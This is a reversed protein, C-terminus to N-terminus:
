QMMADFLRDAHRKLYVQDVPKLKRIMDVLELARESDGGSRAENLAKLLKPILCNYLGAFSSDRNGTLDEVTIPIGIRAAHMVAGFLDRWNGFGKGGVRFGLSECTGVVEAKVDNNLSDWEKKSNSILSLLGLIFHNTAGEEFFRSKYHWLFTSTAVAKSRGDLMDWEKRNEKALKFLEKAPERAVFGHYSEFTKAVVMVSEKGLMRLDERNEVLFEQLNILRWEAKKIKDRRTREDMEEDLGRLIEEEIKAKAEESLGFGAIHASVLLLGAERVDLRKSFTKAEELWKEVNQLEMEALVGPDRLLKAAKSGAAKFGSLYDKLKAIKEAACPDAPIPERARIRERGGKREM